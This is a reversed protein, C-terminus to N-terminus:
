EKLTDRAINGVGSTAHRIADASIADVSLGGAALLAHAKQLDPRAFVKEPYARSWRDIERLGARLRGNEERALGLEQRLREIEDAALGCTYLLSRMPHDVNASAAARHLTEVIDIDSM